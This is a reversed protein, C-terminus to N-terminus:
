PRIEDPQALRDRRLLKFLSFGLQRGAIGDVELVGRAGGAERLAHEEAVPANEQVSPIHAGALPKTRGVAYTNRYREVVAEPDHDPDEAARDVLRGEQNRALVEIRLRNQLAQLLLPCGGDVSHGGHIDRHELV